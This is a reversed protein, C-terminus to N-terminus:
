LEYLHAFSVAGDSGVLVILPLGRLRSTKWCRNRAFDVAPGVDAAAPGGEDATGLETEARCCDDVGACRPWFRSSFASDFNAGLLSRCCLFMHRLTANLEATDHVADILSRQALFLHAFFMLPLPGELSACDGQAVLGVFHQVQHFTESTYSVHDRINVWDM